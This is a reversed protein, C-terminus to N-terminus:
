PAGVEAGVLVQRLRALAAGRQADIRTPGVDVVCGGREVSDDPVVKADIMQDRIVDCDDPHVRLVAVEEGPALALAGCVVEPSIGEPARGVLTEVLDFALAVADGVEVSVAGERLKALSEVAVGLAATCYDLRQRAEELALVPGAQAEQTGAQFGAIYAEDEALGPVSIAAPTLLAVSGPDVMRAVSRRSSM